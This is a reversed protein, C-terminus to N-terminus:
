QRSRKWRYTRYKDRIKSYLFVVVTFILRIALIGLVLASLAFLIKTLPNLMAFGPGVNVFDVFPFLTAVITITGLIVSSVGMAIATIVLAFIISGVAIIVSGWIPSSIVLLFVLIWNISGGSDRLFSKHRFNNEHKNEYNLYEHAIVKPSGLSESIEEETKGHSGGEQFHLNYEDLIEDVVGKPLESLYYRLLDMFEVKKM